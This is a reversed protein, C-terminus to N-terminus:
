AARRERSRYRPMPIVMEPHKEGIMAITPEEVIGGEDLGGTLAGLIQSGAKGLAGPGANEYGARAAQSANVGQTQTGYAGLQQQVATQGGQQALGQQQAVGSRYAGQGAIRAQGVNTAGAATAQGTEMGQQYGTQNVGTQTQQRNQALAAERQAATQEAAAAAQYNRNAMDAATATSTQGYTEAAQIGEQGEVNAQNVGAQGYTTAAQVGTVGALAAANQAAQEETTAATAKMGAQTQTAGLRQSEIGAAREYQAQRAQIDAATEADGQDAAEQAQLRLRGAEIALPSTNGAAAADQRLRDEASRYQNGIRTGAATKMEQVDADSLQKETQNPDFGLAKDGVATDLKGFKGQATDLGTGLDGVSKDLRQGYQGYAAGGWGQAQGVQAGLNAQYNNLITGEAATGEEAKKQPATPDGRIGAQEDGTLFQKGLADQGTKYQSYDVGIKSAEEPTYGPTQQLQQLAQDQASQYQQQIPGYYGLQSIAEQNIQQGGAQIQGQANYFSTHIGAEPDLNLSPIPTAGPNGYISNGQPGDTPTSAAADSNPDIPNGYQDYQAAGRYRSQYPTVAATAM